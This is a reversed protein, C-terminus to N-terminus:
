SDRPSPSTYLLCALAKEIADALERDQKALEEQFPDIKPQMKARLESMERQRQRAEQQIKRGNTPQKQSLTSGEGMSTTSDNVKNPFLNFPKKDYPGQVPFLREQTNKAERIRRRLDRIRQELRDIESWDTRPPNLMKNICAIM